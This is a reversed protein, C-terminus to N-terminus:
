KSVQDLERLPIWERVSQFYLEAGRKSDDSERILMPTGVVLRGGDDPLNLYKRHYENTSYMSFSTTWVSPNVHIM